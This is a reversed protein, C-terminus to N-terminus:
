SEDIAECIERMENMDYGAMVTADTGGSGTTATGTTGTTADSAGTTGATSMAGEVTTDDVADTGAASDTGADGTAGTGPMTGGAATDGHEELFMRCDAEIMDRDSQPLSQWRTSIEEEGRMTRSEDFFADSASSPWTQGFRDTDTGMGQTTSETQAFAAAALLAAVPGVLLSYKM